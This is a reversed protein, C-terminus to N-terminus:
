RERTGASSLMERLADVSALLLSVAQATVPIQRSRLRDLVEELGHTFDALDTFGLSMANGKLTHAMRFLMQVQEHDEPRAELALLAQEMAHLSEECEGLFTQMLGEFDLEM